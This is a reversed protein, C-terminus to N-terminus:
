VGGKRVRRFLWAAVGLAALVAGGLTLLLGRGPWPTSPTFRQGKLNAISRQNTAKVIQGGRWVYEIGERDDVQVPTGDPVPTSIRFPNRVFDPNFNIESLSGKTVLMTTPGDKFRHEETVVFETVVDRGGVREVNTADIQYILEVRPSKPYWSGEGVFPPMPFAPGIWDIGTVKKQRIRL